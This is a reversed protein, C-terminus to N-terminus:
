LVRKADELKEGLVVKPDDHYNLWTSKGEATQHAAEGIPHGGHPQYGKAGVFM